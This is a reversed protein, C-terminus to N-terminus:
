GLGQLFGEVLVYFTDGPEGCFEVYSLLGDAECFPDDDSSTVCTMVANGCDEPIVDKHLQFVSIVTDLFTAENCTSLSYTSRDVTHMSFWIGNSVRNFSSGFSPGSACDYIVVGNNDKITAIEQATTATADLVVANVCNREPAPTCSRGSDSIDLQFPGEEQGFGQVTLFYTTSQLTCLVLESAYDDTDCSFSDDNHGVCVADGCQELDQLTVVSIVTDMVRTNVAEELLCSSITLGNGTGTFSYWLVKSTSRLCLEFQTWEVPRTDGTVFCRGGDTLDVGGDCNGGSSLDLANGCHDNLMNRLHHRHANANSHNFRVVAQRLTKRNQKHAAGAIPAGPHATIPITDSSPSVILDTSKKSQKRSPFPVARRESNRDLHVDVTAGTLM